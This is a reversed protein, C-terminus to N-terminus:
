QLGGSRQTPRDNRRVAGMREMQALFAIGAETLKVGHENSWQMLGARNQADECGAMSENGWPCGRPHMNERDLWLQYKLLGCTECRQCEPKDVCMLAEM